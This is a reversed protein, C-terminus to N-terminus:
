ALVGALHAAAAAAARRARRAVGPLRRAVRPDLLRFLSWRSASPDGLRGLDPLDEGAVDSVARVMAFPVEREACTSAWASAEMECIAAGTAARLTRKTAASWAPRPVTVATGGSADGLLRDRLEPDASWATSGDEAVGSESVMLQGFALSEDLAGCLGAVVVGSPLQGCDSAALRLEAARAAAAVGAGTRVLECPTAGIQATWREPRRGHRTSAIRVRETAAELLPRTELGLAVAILLRRESM